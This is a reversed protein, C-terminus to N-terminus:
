PRFIDSQPLLLACVSVRTASVFPVLGAAQLVVLLM